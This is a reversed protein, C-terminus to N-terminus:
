NISRFAAGVGAFTGSILTRIVVVVAAGILVSLVADRTKLSLAVSTGVVAAVLYWVTAVTPAWVGVPGGFLALVVLVNPLYALGQLRLVTQWDGVGGFLRTGVFWSAGALFVWSALTSIIENVLGIVDLGLRGSAVMGVLWRVIAVGIVLMAADGNASASFMWDGFARRDLTAARWAQHLIPKV